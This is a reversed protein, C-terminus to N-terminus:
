VDCEDCPCRTPDCECYRGCGCTAATCRCTGEDDNMMAAVMQDTTPM